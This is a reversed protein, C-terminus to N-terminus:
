VTCNKAVIHRESCLGLVGSLILCTNHFYRLDHSLISVPNVSYLPVGAYVFKVIYYM